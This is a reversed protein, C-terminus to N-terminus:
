KVCGPCASYPRGRCVKCPSFKFNSLDNADQLSMGWPPRGRDNTLGDYPMPAREYEPTLPADIWPLQGPEGQPESMAATVTQPQAPALNVAHGYGDDQVPAPPADGPEGFWMGHGKPMVNNILYRDSNDLKRKEFDLTGPANYNWLRGEPEIHFASNPKVQLGQQRVKQNMQMHQPKMGETPWNWVSGNSLIFGKGPTGPKWQLNHQAPMLNPNDHQAWDYASTKEGTGPDYGMDAMPDFPATPASQAPAPQGYRRYNPLEVGPSQHWWKLQTFPNGKYDAMGSGNCGYMHDDNDDYQYRRDDKGQCQGEGSHYPDNPNWGSGGCDACARSSPGVYTEARGSWGKNRSPVIGLARHVANSDPLFEPNKGEDYPGQGPYSHTGYWEATNDEAKQTGWIVQPDSSYYRRNPATNRGNYLTETEANEQDTAHRFLPDFEGILDEPISGPAGRIVHKIGPLWALTRHADDPYQVQTGEHVKYPNDNGAYRPGQPVPRTNPDYFDTGCPCVHTPETRQGTPDYPTYLGRAWREYQDGCQPCSYSPADYAAQVQQPAQPPQPATQPAQVRRMREPPIPQFTRVSKEPWYPDPEYSEPPDTAWLEWPGMHPNQENQMQQTYRAQDEDTWLYNAPQSGLTKYDTGSQGQTWDLGTQDIGSDAPAVHYFTASEVRNHGIARKPDEPGTAHQGSALDDKKVNRSGNRDVSDRVGVETWDSTARPRVRGSEDEPRSTTGNTTASQRTGSPGMPGSTRRQDRVVRRDNKATQVSSTTPTGPSGYGSPQSDPLGTPASQWDSAGNGQSSPQVTPQTRDQHVAPGQSSLDNAVNLHLNPDSAWTPLLGAKQPAYITDASGATQNHEGNPGYNVYSNQGRTESALAQQALPSFMAAHQRYANDEGNARFGLGEKAHGYFDHIARVQDNYTVPQGNWREGSDELLPHNTPNEDMGYGESTPYVYMHKNHHLDLVAERPSNPYPDRDQPYFEFNYGNQKAHAYQAAVEDKLANYAARVHPNDPDHQMQEYAQAVQAGKAPDVPTYQAPHANLGNQANYENALRQIDKHGHFHLPGTGPVNVPGPLGELDTGANADLMQQHPLM